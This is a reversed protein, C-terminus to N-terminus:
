FASLRNIIKQFSKGTERSAAMAARSPALSRQECTRLRSDQDIFADILSEPVGERTMNALRGAISSQGSQFVTFQKCRGFCGSKVNEERHVLADLILLIQTPSANSDDNSRFR